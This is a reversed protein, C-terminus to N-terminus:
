VEVREKYKFVIYINVNDQTQHFHRANEQEQDVAARLLSHFRDRTERTIHLRTHTLPIEDDVHSHKGM